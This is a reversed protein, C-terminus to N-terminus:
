KRILKGDIIKMLEDKYNKSVPIKVQGVTVENGNLSRIKSIAVIYSKHIRLFGGAPLQEELSRMPTLTM